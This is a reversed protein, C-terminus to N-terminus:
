GLPIGHKRALEANQAELKLIDAMKKGFYDEVRQSDWVDNPRGTSEIRGGNNLITVCDDYVLRAFHRLDGVWGQIDQCKAPDGLAKVAKQWHEAYSAVHQPLDVNRMNDEYETTTGAIGERGPKNSLVDSLL